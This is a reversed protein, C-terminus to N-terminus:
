KQGCFPSFGVMLLQDSISKKEEQAAWITLVSSNM